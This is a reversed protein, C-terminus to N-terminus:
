YRVWGDEVARRVIQPSLSAGVLLTQPPPMNMARRAEAMRRLLVSMAESQSAETLCMDAEDIVMNRVNQLQLKGAVAVRSLFEPTGVIIHV